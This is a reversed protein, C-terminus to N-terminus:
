LIDVRPFAGAPLPLFGRGYRLLRDGRPTEAGRRGHLGTMAAAREHAREEM